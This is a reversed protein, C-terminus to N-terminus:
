ERECNKLEVILSAASVGVLVGAMGAIVIRWGHAL